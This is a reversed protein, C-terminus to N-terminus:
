EHLSKVFKSDYIRKLSQSIRRNITYRDIPWKQVLDVRDYQRRFTDARYSSIDYKALVTLIAESVSIGPLSSYFFADQFMKDDVYRSLLRGLKKSNRESLGIIGTRQTTQIYVIFTNQEPIFNENSKGESKIYAFISSKLFNNDCLDILPMKNKLPFFNVLYECVYEKVPVRIINRVEM